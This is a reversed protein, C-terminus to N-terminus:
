ALPLTLFDEPLAADFDDGIHTVIARIGHKRKFTGIAKLKLGGKPRHPVLDFIPRGNRTVVVTEGKEVQRALTTLRNKAERISVTRM